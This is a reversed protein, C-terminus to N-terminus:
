AVVESTLSKRVIRRPYHSTTIHLYQQASGLTDFSNTSTEFWEEIGQSTTNTHAEIAYWTETIPKPDCKASPSAAVIRDDLNKNTM